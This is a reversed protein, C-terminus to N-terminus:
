VFVISNCGGSVWYPHAVAISPALQQQQEVGVVVGASKLERSEGKGGEM